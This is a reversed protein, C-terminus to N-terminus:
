ITAFDVDPPVPDSDITTMNQEAEAFLRIIEGTASSIKPPRNTCRKDCTCSSCKRGSSKCSCSRYCTSWRSCDCCPTLVMRPRSSPPIEDDNGFTFIGPERTKECPENQKGTTTRVAMTSITGVTQGNEMTKDNDDDNIDVAAATGGHPVTPRNMIMLPDNGKM